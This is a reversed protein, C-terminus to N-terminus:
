LTNNFEEAKDQNWTIDHGNVQITGIHEKCGKGIIKNLDKLIAQPNSRNQAHDDYYEKEAKRLAMNVKLKKYKLWDGKTKQAKTHFYNQTRLLVRIEASIWLLNHRKVQLSKKLTYWSTYYNALHLASSRSVSRAVAGQLRTPEQSSTPFLQEKM